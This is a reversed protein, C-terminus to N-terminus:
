FKLSTGFIQWKRLRAQKATLNGSSRFLFPVSLPRSLPPFVLSGSLSGVTFCKLAKCRVILKLFNFYSGMLCLFGCLHIIVIDLTLHSSVTKIRVTSSMSLNWAQQRYQSILPCAPWKSWASRSVTRWRWNVVGRTKMLLSICKFICNPFVNLNLQDPCHSDGESSLGELKWWCASRMRARGWCFSHWESLSFM